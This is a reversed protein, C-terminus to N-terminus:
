VKGIGGLFQRFFQAARRYSIAGGYRTILAKALWGAMVGAWMYDM